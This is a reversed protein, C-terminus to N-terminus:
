QGAGTAAGPAPNAAEAAQQDSLRERYKEDWLEAQKKIEDKKATDSALKVEELYLLKEGLYPEPYSPNAAVAKQMYEHSKAIAGNIQPLRAPDISPYTPPAGPAAPDKKAFAEIVEHAEKWYDDAITYYMQAKVEDTQGPLNARQELHDLYQKRAEEFQARDKVPDYVQDRLSKYAKAIFSIARDRFKLDDSGDYVQQFADITKKGFDISGSKDVEQSNLSKEFRANLAMAYFFKANVNTPDYALAQEFMTQANDYKGQNFTRVGENLENKARLKNVLGCGQLGVAATLAALTAIRRVNSKM